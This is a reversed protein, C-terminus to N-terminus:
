QAVDHGADALLARIDPVADTRVLLHDRLHSSLVFVGHGATSIPTVAAMVVGPADLDALTDVRLATWGHSATVDSPVRATLCTISVEDLAWTLTVLGDGNAWAPVADDAPLHVISYAGDLQTFTLRM